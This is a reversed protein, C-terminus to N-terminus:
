SNGFRGQLAPNSLTRMTLFYVFRLGTVLSTVDLWEGLTHADGGVAVGVSTAPIGLSSPWNANTSDITERTLVGFQEHLTARLNRLVTAGAAEGAPRDGIVSCQQRVGSQWPFRQLSEQLDKALRELQLAGSSRLDIQCEAHAAISNVTTGGLITGVNFTSTVAPQLGASQGVTEALEAQVLALWRAMEHIASPRGFDAWSHGGATEVTVRYRRSGVTGISEKGFMGDLTYLAAIRERHTRCLERMGCLDGLGEEGTSFCFLIREAGPLPDTRLQKMLGLLITLGAGDDYVGPAHWLRMSKRLDFPTGPPFATDLHADLVLYRGTYTPDFPALVNGVADQVATYGMQQVRALFWRGREFEERAPAEIPLFAELQECLFAQWASSQVLFPDLAPVSNPLPRSFPDASPEPVSLPGRARLTM